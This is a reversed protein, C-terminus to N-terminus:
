CVPLDRWGIWSLQRGAEGRAARYSHYRHSECRTCPACVDLHGEALGARLLLERNAMALDVRLGARDVAVELQRDRFREAVEEGVEYCCARISPGIAARLAHAPHGRGVADAVAAGVIDAATGRWGSHVAATWPSAAPSASFLLVPVCDATKVAVVVGARTAVLADGAVDGHDGDGLDDCTVLNRGHVQRVSVVPLPPLAFRDGFGAVLSPFRAWARPALM